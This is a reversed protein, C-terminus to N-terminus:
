VIAGILLFVVYMGLAPVSSDEWILQHATGTVAVTYIVNRWWFTM